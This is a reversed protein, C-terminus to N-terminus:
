RNRPIKKDVFDFYAQPDSVDGELVCARDILFGCM